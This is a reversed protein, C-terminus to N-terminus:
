GHDRDRNKQHNTFMKVTGYLKFAAARGNGDEKVSFQRREEIQISVLFSLPLSAAVAHSPVFVATVHWRFLFM